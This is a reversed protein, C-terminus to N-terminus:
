KIEKLFFISNAAFILNPNIILETIKMIIWKYLVIM